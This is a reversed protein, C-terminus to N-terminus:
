IYLTDERGLEACNYQLTATKFAVHDGGDFLNRIFEDIPYTRNSM